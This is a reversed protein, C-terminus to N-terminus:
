QAFRELLRPAAAFTTTDPAAPRSADAQTVGAPTSTRSPAAAISRRAYSAAEVNRADEFIATRVTPAFQREDM